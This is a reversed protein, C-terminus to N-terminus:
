MKVFKLSKDGVRVFYVGPTLHSVDVRPGEASIIKVGALSYIDIAQTPDAMGSITIFEITPNPYLIQGPDDNEDVSVSPRRYTGASAYASAWGIFLDHKQSYIANYWWGPIDSHKEYRYELERTEFNMVESYITLNLMRKEDDFLIIEGGGTPESYYDVIRNEDVSFKLCGQYQYYPQDITFAGEFLCTHPESKMFEIDSPEGLHSTIYPNHLRFNTVLEFNDLDW